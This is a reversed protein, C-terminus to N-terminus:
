LKPGTFPITVAGNDDGELVWAGTLEGILADADLDKDDDTMEAAGSVVLVQEGGVVAALALYEGLAAYVAEDCDEVLEGMPRNICTLTSQQVGSLMAACDFHGTFLDVMSTAGDAFGPLVVNVFAFLLLRGPNIHLDFEEILLENAPTVQCTAESDDAKLWVEGEEFDDELFLNAGTPGLLELSKIDLTAVCDAGFAGGEISLSAGFVPDTLLDELPAALDGPGWAWSPPMNGSVWEDVSEDIEVSVDDCQEPLVGGDMWALIGDLVATKVDGPAETLGAELAMSWGPAHGATLAGFDPTMTLQYSGAPSIQLPGLTVEATTEKGAFVNIGETCGAGVPLDSTDYGIVMITYGPGAVADEILLQTDDAGVTHEAMDQGPSTPDAAACLLSQQSVYVTFSDVKGPDEIDGSLSFSLLISGTAHAQVELVVQISPACGTDITLDYTVPAQTGSTLEVTAVGFEDTVASSQLIGADGDGTLAFVVEHGKPTDGTVPDYIRAQIDYDRDVELQLPSAGNFLEMVLEATCEGVPVFDETVDAGSLDQNGVDGQVSDGAPPGDAGACGGYLALMLISASVLWRRQTM